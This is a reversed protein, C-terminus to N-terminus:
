WGGSGGIGGEGQISPRRFRGHPRYLIIISFRYEQVEHTYLIFCSNDFAGNLHVRLKSKHMRHGQKKCMSDSFFPFDSKQSFVLMIRVNYWCFILLTGVSCWSLVLLLPTMALSAPAGSSSTSILFKCAGFGCGSGCVRGPRTFLRGKPRM